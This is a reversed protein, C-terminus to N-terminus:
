LVFLTNDLDHSGLSWLLTVSALALILHLPRNHRFDAFKERWHGEFVWNVFLFVWAMNTFFVSTTM